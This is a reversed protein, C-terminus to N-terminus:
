PHRPVSAILAAFSPENELSGYTPVRSFSPVPRAGNWSKSDLTGASSFDSSSATLASMMLPLIVISDLDCALWRCSQSTVGVEAGATPVPRRSRPIVLRNPSRTALLEISRSMVGPSIWQRSPSFPGALRRQHVHQVPQQLGVFARNGDVADLMGM